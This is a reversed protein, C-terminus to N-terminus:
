LKVMVNFYVTPGMISMATNGGRFGITVGGGPLDTGGGAYAGGAQTRALNSPSATHNHSLLESISMAHYREGIHEGMSALTYTHTISWTPASKATFNIYTGNQANSLTSALRITTTNVRVVYYTFGSTLGSVTGSSLTFAVPMGTIWTQDNVPVTLTDNGLDVGADGGSASTSGTGYGALARGLTKPLAMVKGASFDDTSSAGRGGVVPCWQDACNAWILAYLAATDDNARTTAASGSKGITGDNMLIWGPDAAVKLTLKVDGTSMLATATPVWELGTVNNTNVSLVSGNIGNSPFRALTDDGTGALIDGKAQIISNSTESPVNLNARAQAATTAGTGGQAISVPLGINTAAGPAAWEIGGGIKARAFLGEVPADVTGVATSTEVYALARQSQERLQQIMMTIKDLDREIQPPSLSTGTYTGFQSHPQKRLITINTSAAPTTLLAITGGSESGVGSVSYDVDLTKEVGGVLVKIDRKSYVKFTYPFESTAGNATYRNASPSDPVTAFAPVSFLFGVLLILIHIM